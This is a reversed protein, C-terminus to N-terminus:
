VSEVGKDVPSASVRRFSWLVLGLALDGLDQRGRVEMGLGAASRSPSGTIGSHWLLLEGEGFLFRAGLAICEEPPAVARCGVVTFRGCLDTAQEAPQNRVEVNALCLERSVSALFAAAKRRVDLATVMSCPHLLAAVIGFAGNGAGLDLLASGPALRITRWARLTPLVLRRVVAEERADATLDLAAGVEGVAQVYGAIGDMTTAIDAPSAVRSLERVLLHRCLANM